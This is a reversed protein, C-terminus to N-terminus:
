DPRDAKRRYSHVIYRHGSWSYAGEDSCEIAYRACVRSWAKREGHDPSAQNCNYTNFLILCGESLMGNRLLYDLVEFTSQYLCCDMHLMAFAIQDPILTLTESFWGPYIRIRESPLHKDIRTRLDEATLGPCCSGERWIESLVHPASTDEVNTARPIGEFSDFLHLKMGRSYDRSFRKMAGAIPVATNGLSGFEAIDGPVRAAFAYEVGTELAEFRRRQSTTPRDPRSRLIVLLNRVILAAVRAPPFRLSAIKTEPYVTWDLMKM